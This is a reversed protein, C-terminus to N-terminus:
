RGHFLKFGNLRVQAEAGGHPLLQFPWVEVDGRETKRTVTAFPKHCAVSGAVTSDDFAYGAGVKWKPTVRFEVKSREIAHHFRAAENLPTYAFYVTESQWRGAVIKLQVWPMAYRASRAAPGFDQVFYGEAVLKLHDGDLIKGGGGSIMQNARNSGFNIFTVDALLRGKSREVEVMYYTGSHPADLRMGTRITAKYLAIEGEQAVASFSILVSLVFFRIM